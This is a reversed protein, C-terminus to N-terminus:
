KLNRRRRWKGEVVNGCWESPLDEMRIGENIDHGVLKFYTDPPGMAKLQQLVINGFKGDRMCNKFIDDTIQRRTDCDEMQNACVKLFTGYTLHDPSGYDGSELEKLQNHAIEMAQQQEELDGYTYACANIVANVVVINPKLKKNGAKYAKLMTEFLDNAHVAKGQDQSRGWAPFHLFLPPPLPPLFM